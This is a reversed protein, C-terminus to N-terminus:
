VLNSTHTYRSCTNGALFSALPSAMGPSPVIDVDPPLTLTLTLPPLAGLSLTYHTLSASRALNRLM